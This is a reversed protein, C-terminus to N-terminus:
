TTYLVPKHPNLPTAIPPITANSIKNKAKIEPADM